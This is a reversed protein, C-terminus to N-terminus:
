SENHLRCWSLLLVTPAEPCRWVSAKTFWVRDLFARGHEHAILLCFPHMWVANLPERASQAGGHTGLPTAGPPVGQSWIM